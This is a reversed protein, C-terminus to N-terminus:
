QKDKTGTPAAILYNIQHINRFTWMYNCTKCKGEVKTPGGPEMTGDNKDFEGNIQEWCITAGDWIEILFLDRSKCKPCIAKSREM